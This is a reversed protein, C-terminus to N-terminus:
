RFCGLEQAWGQGLALIKAADGDAAAVCPGSAPEQCERGVLRAQRLQEVMQSPMLQEQVNLTVHQQAVLKAANAM